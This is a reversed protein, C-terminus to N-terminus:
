VGDRWEWGCFSCPYGIGHSSRQPCIEHPHRKDTRSNKQKDPDLNRVGQKTKTGM